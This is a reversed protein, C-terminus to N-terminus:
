RSSKIANECDQVFKVAEEFGLEGRKVLRKRDGARSLKNRLIVETPQDFRDYRIKAYTVNQWDAIGLDTRMKDTGFKELPNLGSMPDTDRIITSNKRTKLSLDMDVSPEGSGETDEVDEIDVEEEPSPEEEEKEPEVYEALGYRPTKIFDDSTVEVRIPDGEKPDMSSDDVVFYSFDGPTEVNNPNVYEKNVVKYVLIPVQGYLNKGEAPGAEDEPDYKGEKQLDNGWEKDEETEVEEENEDPKNIEEDKIKEDAEKLLAFQDFSLARNELLDGFDIDASLSENKNEGGGSVPFVDDMPLDKIQSESLLSGEVNVREGSKDSYNFLYTNKAEKPVTFPYDPAKSYEDQFLDWDCHGVLSTSLMYDEINPIAIIKFDLDDNDFTGREFSSSNSFSLLVLNNDEVVKQLMKSNVQLLVFVSRDEKQGIKVMEMTTRTDDKSMTLVDIVVGWASAGGDSTWCLTISKGIPINKPKFSGYAFDDVDSFRPAQKDSLWNWTQNIGSGVAQVALIIWGVPNSALAGASAAARAGFGAAARAGGAAVARQAAQKVSTAAAGRLLAGNAAYAAGGEVFAGSPLIVKGANALASAGTGSVLRAAFARLGSIGGARSAAPALSRALNGSTWGYIGRGAKALLWTSYLGGAATLALYVGGIAGLGVAVDAAYKSIDELISETDEVPGTPIAYDLDCLILEGVDYKRTIRLASRSTYVPNGSEDLFDVVVARPDGEGLDEEIQLDAKLEGSKILKEVAFTLKQFKKLAEKDVSDGDDKENLLIYDSFSVVKRREILNFIQDGAYDFLVNSSLRSKELIRESKKYKDEISEAQWSRPNNKLWNKWKDTYAWWQFDNLSISEGDLDLPINILPFLNNEKVKGTELSKEGGATGEFKIGKKFALIM